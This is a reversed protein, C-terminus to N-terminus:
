EVRLKQLAFHIADVLADVESLTNYLAFSARVTAPVGLWEHLPMTCHHGHRVFVGRRDLLQAL